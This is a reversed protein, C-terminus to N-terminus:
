EGKGTLNNYWTRGTERVFLIGDSITSVFTKPKSIFAVVYAIITSKVMESDVGFTKFDIGHLSCQTMIYSALWASIIIALITVKGGPADSKLTTDTM